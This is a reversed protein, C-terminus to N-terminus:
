ARRDAAANEAVAAAREGGFRVMAATLRFMNSALMEASPGLARPGVTITSGKFMMASMM